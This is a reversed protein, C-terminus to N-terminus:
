QTQTKWCRFMMRIWTFALTRVAAHHRKGRDRQMHYYAKAWVSQHISENAYEQFRQRLFKPCAKRWQVLVSQGSAKKVPSIGMTNHVEDPSHFRNRDTGFAALLRPAFVAAAGPFSAFIKADPHKPFRQAITLPETM